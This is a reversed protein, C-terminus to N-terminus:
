HSSYFIFLTVHPNYCFRHKGARVVPPAPKTYYTRIPSPSRSRPRSHTIIIPPSRTPTIIRPSERQLVPRRM